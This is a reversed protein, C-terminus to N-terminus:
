QPDSSGTQDRKRKLLMKKRAQLWDDFPHLVVLIVLALIMATIVVLWEGFGCAIGLAATVWITAASTLFRVRGESPVQLVLGAGLFGIGTMLGHVTGQMVRSLAATDGAIAPNNLVMVCVTAAGLSVLALTRIGIPKAELERDLGLIGGALAAAGLRLVTDGAELV